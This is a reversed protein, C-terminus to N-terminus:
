GHKMVNVRKANGNLHPKNHRPNPTPALGRPANWNEKYFETNWAMDPREFILVQVNDWISSNICVYFLIYM